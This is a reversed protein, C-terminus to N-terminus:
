LEATWRQKGAVCVISRFGIERLDRGSERAIEKTKADSCKPSSMEFVAFEPGTARATAASGMEKPPPKFARSGFNVRLAEERRAITALLEDAVRREPTGAPVSSLEKRAARHMEALKLPEGETTKLLDRAAEIHSRSEVAITEPQNRIEAHIATNWDEFSCGVFAGAVVPIVFAAFGWGFCGITRDFARAGCSPCVLYSTAGPPIYERAQQKAAGKAIRGAARGVENGLVDGVASGVVSKVGVGVAAVLVRKGVEGWDTRVQMEYGCGRCRKVSRNYLALAVLGCIGLLTSVIFASGLAGLAEIVGWARYLM